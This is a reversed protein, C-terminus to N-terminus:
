FLTKRKPKRSYVINNIKEQLFRANHMMRCVRSTSLEELTFGYKVLSKEFDIKINQPLRSFHNPKNKQVDNIQISGINSAITGVAGQKIWTTSDASTIFPFQALIKVSTMGFAHVKISPNMRKIIEECKSLFSIKTVATKGVMGGLAIYVMRNGKSDQWSLAQELHKYDEGVHFTYLLKHPHKLKEHMYLYNEWTKLPAEIKEEESAGKPSGPIHDLQAFLTLYATRQNLFQIYNDVNIYKGSTWASYAGSDVFLKRINNKNNIKEYQYEEVELPNEFILDDPVQTIFDPVKRKQLLENIAIVCDIINKQSEYTLLRNYNIYYLDTKNPFKFGKTFYTAPEIVPKLHEQSGAFYLDM